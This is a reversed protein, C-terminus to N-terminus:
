GCFVQLITDFFFEAEAADTLDVFSLAAERNNATVVTSFNRDCDKFTSNDTSCDEIPASSFTFLEM